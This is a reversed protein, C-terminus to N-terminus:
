MIEAVSVILMAAPILILQALLTGALRSGVLWVVARRFYPESTRGEIVDDTMVSMQPDIFVFMLITATGYIRQFTPILLAGVITALTASWLMWRFDALLGHAVGGAINNEIRKALFPGQFSNSTRSVLILINFISFSIAIRRTRVGAIRAAYALTGILHIVFTLICIVLLQIDM